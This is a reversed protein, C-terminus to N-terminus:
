NGRGTKADLRRMVHDAGRTDGAEALLEAYRQGVEYWPTASAFPTVDPQPLAKWATRYLEVRQALHELTQEAREVARTVQPGATRALRLVDMYATRAKDVDGQEILVDGQTIRTKAVLDPRRRFNRLLNEYLDLQKEAPQARIMKSMQDYAFEPFAGGAFRQLAADMRQKQKEPMEAAGAHEVLRDWALVNAPSTEIARILIRTREEGEAHMALHALATSLMRDSPRTTALLGLVKVDADTLQAGTQPDRAEGTWYKYEDYRGETFDWVARSGRVALYGVWAHGGSGSGSEGRVYVSPVGCAKGVQSAFYAQDVCLGGFRTLNVLTYEHESIQKERGLYYADDDYPVDFFASGVSRSTAYREHAWAMEEPSVAGDVVFVSLRWPMQVPAILFRKETFWRYKLVHQEVPLADLAASEDPQDYVVALATVVEHHRDLYQERLARLDALVDLARIPDDRDGIAMLLQPGLSQQRALWKFAGRHRGNMAEVRQDYINLARDAAAAYILQDVPAKDGQELLADIKEDLKQQAEDARGAAIAEVTNVLVQNPRAPEDKKEGPKDDARALAGVFVVIAILAWHQSATTM